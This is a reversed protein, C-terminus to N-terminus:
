VFYNNYRNTFWKHLVEVPQKDIDPHTSQWNQMYDRKLRDILLNKYIQFNWKYYLDADPDKKNGATYYEKIKDEMMCLALNIDFKDQALNSSISNIFNRSKLLEYKKEIELNMHEPNNLICTKDPNRKAFIHKKKDFGGGNMDNKKSMKSCLELYKNKYKLYKLEYNM